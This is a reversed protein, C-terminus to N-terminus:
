LVNIAHLHKICDPFDSYQIFNDGPKVQSRQNQGDLIQMGSIDDVSVDLGFIRNDIMLASDEEDIHPSRLNELGVIAVPSIGDNSGGM